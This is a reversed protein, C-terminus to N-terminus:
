FNINLDDTSEEEFFGLEKEWEAISWLELHNNNGVIQLEEGIGVASKLGANLTFRGNKDVEGYVVSSLIKRTKRRTEQNYQDGSNFQRYLENWGNESYMFICNTASDPSKILYVKTGLEERFSSPVKFRNKEDLNHHFQGCFVGDGGLFRGFFIMGNQEVETRNTVGNYCKRM